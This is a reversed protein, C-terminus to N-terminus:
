LKGAIDQYLELLETLRTQRKMIEDCQLKIHGKLIMREEQKDVKDEQVQALRALFSEHKSMVLWKSEM